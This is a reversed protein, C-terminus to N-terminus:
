ESKGSGGQCDWRSVIYSGYDTNFVLSAGFEFKLWENGM